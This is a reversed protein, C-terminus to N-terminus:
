SHHKVQCTRPLFRSSPPLKIEKGLLAAEEELIPPTGQDDAMPKLLSAEMIDDGSLTMLPAICRQLERALECLIGAPVVLEQCLGAACLGLSPDEEGEHCPFGKLQLYWCPILSGWPPAWQIQTPCGVVRFGWMTGPAAQVSGVPKSSPKQMVSSERILYPGMLVKGSPKLEKWLHSHVIKGMEEYIWRHPTIPNPDELRLWPWSQSQNAPPHSLAKPRAGGTHTPHCQLSNSPPLQLSEEPMPVPADDWEEASGEVWFLTLGLLLTHDDGLDGEEEFRVQKKPKEAPTLSDSEWLRSRSEHPRTCLNLDIISCSLWEAAPHSQLLSPSPSQHSSQANLLPAKIGSQDIGAGLIPIGEWRQNDQTPTKKWGSPQKWRWCGSSPPCAWSISYSCSHRQGRASPASGVKSQLGARAMCRALEWCLEGMCWGQWQHPLVSPAVALEGRYVWKAM